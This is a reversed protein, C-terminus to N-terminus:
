RPYLATTAPPRRLFDSRAPSFSDASPAASSILYDVDGGIFQVKGPVSTYNLSGLFPVEIDM